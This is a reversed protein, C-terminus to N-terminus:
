RALVLPGQQEGGQILRRRLWGSLNDMIVVTVVILLIIYVTNEWDRGTRLTELLKLGIGGAGLAGIITASRTNSELYYLTQSIFVPMIQPLVGFRYTQLRNAGTSKVGEAVRSDVNEIAESMLKGLTGTDTFFIAFIGSFPGLGFARIFILSWILQDVGRLFDFLRRVFLRLPAIPNINRAAVFALPLGLLAAVMTGVVAMVLTELLAFWVDGHHWDGNTWFEEWVLSLNSRMPDVRDGFLVLDVADFFGYGALPSAFDFWFNEWGLFFRHVEVKTRLVQIRSFTSPRIEARTDRVTIWDPLATRAVVAEDTAEIVVEPGDVPRYRVIRGEIEVIGDGGGLDVRLVDDGDDVWDPFVEYHQRRNGELSVETEAGDEFARVVHIKHAYSDRALLHVRDARVSSLAGVVDLALVAYILYGIALVTLTVPLIRRPPRDVIAPFARAIRARDAQSVSVAM